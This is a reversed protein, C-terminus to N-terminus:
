RHAVVGFLGTEAADVHEGDLVVGEPKVPHHPLPMIVDHDWHGRGQFAPSVRRLGELASGPPFFISSIDPHNRASRVCGKWPQHRHVAIRYSVREGSVLAPLVEDHKARCKWHRTLYSFNGIYGSM